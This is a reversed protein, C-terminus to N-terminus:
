GLPFSVRVELGRGSPSTHLSVGAGHREAIARVIALGLGSGGANHALALAGECSRGFVRALACDILAFLNITSSAVTANTL